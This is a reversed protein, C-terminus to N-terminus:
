AGEGVKPPSEGRQGSLVQFLNSCLEEGSLHLSLGAQKSFNCDSRQRRIVRYTRM